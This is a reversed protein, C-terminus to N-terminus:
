PPAAGCRRRGRGGSIRPPRRARRSPAARAADTATRGVGAARIADGSAAPATWSPRRAAMGGGPRITGADRRRLRRARDLVPPAGGDRGGPRITGSDRRRPRRARDLVPPAAGDRGGPRTTGAARRRSQALRGLVSPVAGDRHPTPDDGFRAEQPPPRPGPCAARRWGSAPDPRGRRAGGPAACVSAGRGMPRKGASARRRMRRRGASARRRMQRRGASARRRMQRRGASARQAMQRRGASARQAMQRRGASARQAMQQTGVSPFGLPFPRHRRARARSSEGHIMIM